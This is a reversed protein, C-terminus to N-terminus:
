KCGGSNYSLLLLKYYSCSCKSDSWKSKVLRIIKLKKISDVFTDFDLVIQSFKGQIVKLNILDKYEGKTLIFVEESIINTTKVIPTETYLAHYAKTWTTGDVKPTEHFPKMKTRDISWNRIMDTANTLYQGIEIFM